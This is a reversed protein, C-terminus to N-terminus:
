QTNYYGSIIDSIGPFMKTQMFKLFCVPLKTLETFFM